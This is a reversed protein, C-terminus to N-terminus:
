TADVSQNPSKLLGQCGGAGRRGALVRGLLGRRGAGGVVFCGCVRWFGTASCSRLWWWGVLWGVLWFGVVFWGSVQLVVMFWICVLGMAGLFWGGALWLGVVCWGSTLSFGVLFWESDLLLGVAM